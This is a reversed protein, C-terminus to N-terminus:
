SGNSAPAGAAGKARQILEALQKKQSDDLKDISRKWRYSRYNAQVYQWGFPGFADVDAKLKPMASLVSKFQEWPLRQLDKEIEESSPAANTNDTQKPEAVIASAAGEEAYSMAVCLVLMLAGVLGTMGNARTSVTSVDGM